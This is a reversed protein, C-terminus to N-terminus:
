TTLFGDVKRLLVPTQLIPDFEVQLGPHREQLETLAARKPEEQLGVKGPHAVRKDFNPLPKGPTVVFDAAACAYHAILLCGCVIGYRFHMWEGQLSKLAARVALCKM